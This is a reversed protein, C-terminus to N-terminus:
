DDDNSETTIPDSEEDTFGASEEHRRSADPDFQAEIDQYRPVFSLEHHSETEHGIYREELDFQAEEDNEAINAFDEYAAHAGSHLGYLTIFIYQYGLDGLEEFTLPDEQAGGSSRPPTTSPSIWIPTPRPDDRRVRDRGRAVPRADGALRPRRRRRRLDPRTRPPGGLRRQRLRVLRHSRHHRHRREAQRRRRGRLALAGAGPSVVEKGAIHGCRKPTTQDEIHIAAVGAKEYERVARRVNHTGGYGTDCDAIVPLNTAEVMRKANEVMESMTVMELDPFGFQGLVTSYGSMYAAADLGAM